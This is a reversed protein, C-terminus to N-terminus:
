APGGATRARPGCALRARSAAREAPLLPRLAQLLAAALPEADPALRYRVWAGDRRARALGLDRLAVLHRSAASQSLGLRAEVECTCFERELLVALIRLRTPDGLGRLLRALRERRSAAAAPSSVASRASSM